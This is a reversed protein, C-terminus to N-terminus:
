EASKEIYPTKFPIPSVPFKYGLCYISDASIAKELKRTADDDFNKADSYKTLVPLDINKKIESLYKQGLRSAALLVTYSPLENKEADGVSLLYAIIERRLRAM